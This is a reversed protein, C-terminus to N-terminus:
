LADVMLFLFGFFTQSHMDYKCDMIRVVPPDADPSLIVIQVDQEDLSIPSSDPLRVERSQVQARDSQKPPPYSLLSQLSPLSHRIAHM